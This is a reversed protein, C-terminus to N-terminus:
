GNEGGQLGNAVAQMIDPYKETLEQILAICQIAIEKKSGELTIITNKGNGHNMVKIM